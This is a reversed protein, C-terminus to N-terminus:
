FGNRPIGCFVLTQHYMMFAVNGDYISNLNNMLLRSLTTARFAKRSSEVKANALCVRHFIIHRSPFSFSESVYQFRTLSHTFAAFFFLFNM